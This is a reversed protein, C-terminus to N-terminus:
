ESDIKETLEKISEVRNTGEDAFTVYKVKKRALKAELTPVRKSGLEIAKNYNAWAMPINPPTELLLVQAMNIYANVENPNNKIATQLATKAESVKNLAIYSVGLTTYIRASDPREEALQTLISVSDNYKGLKCQIIAALFRVEMNTPDEQIGRIVMTKAAQLNDEAIAQKTHKIILAMKQHGKADTEKSTEITTSPTNENELRYRVIVLQDKCYEMRKKIDEPLLDPKESLSQMYGLLADKYYVMAKKNENKKFAEEAKVFSTYATNLVATQAFLGLAIVSFLIIFFQKM